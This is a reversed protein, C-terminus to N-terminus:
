LASKILKGITQGNQPSVLECISVVSGWLGHLNYVARTKIRFCNGIENEKGDKCIEYISATKRRKKRRKLHAYKLRSGSGKVSSSNENEKKAKESTKSSQMSMEAKIKELQRISVQTLSLTQIEVLAHKPLDPVHIIVATGIGM